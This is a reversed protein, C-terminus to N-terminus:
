GDEAMDHLASCKYCIRRGESNVGIPDFKSLISSCEACVGMISKLCYRCFFYTAGSEPHHWEATDEAENCLYCRKM